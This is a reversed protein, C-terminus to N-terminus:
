TNTNPSSSQWKLLLCFFVSM